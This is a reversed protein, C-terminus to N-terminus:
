THRDVSWVQGDDVMIPTRKPVGKVAPQWPDQLAIVQATLPVSNAPRIRSADDELAVHGKSRAVRIIGNQLHLPSRQQVRDDGEWTRVDLEVNMVPPDRSRQSGIERSESSCTSRDYDTVLHRHRRCSSVVSMYESMRVRTSALSSGVVLGRSCPIYASGLNAM